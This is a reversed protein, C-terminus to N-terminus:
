NYLPKSCKHISMGGNQLFDPCRESHEFLFKKWRNFFFYLVFTLKLVSKKNNRYALLVDLLKKHRCPYCKVPQLQCGANIGLSNMTFAERVTGPLQWAESTDMHSKAIQQSVWVVGYNDHFALSRKYFGAPTNSVTTTINCTGTTLADAFIPHTLETFYFFGWM